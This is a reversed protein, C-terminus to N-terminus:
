KVSFTVNAVSTIKKEISSTDSIGSDSVDNSNVPTIQFVGMRVSQIKGVKNHNAKLMASARQKADKTAEELMKVKVDSLQSYFYSPNYVTIDIGKSILNPLEQSVEKIKQVDKSTVTIPLSVNYYAIDNSTNGNPLMRYTNYGNTTKIEIENDSFGKEKLFAIVEPKQKNIVDYALAKTEQRTNIEFECLGTDSTVNQSYSGTVTIVDKTIAGTILKTAFVLSCGIIVSLLLVQFKELKDM